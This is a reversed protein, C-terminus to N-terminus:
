LAIEINFHKQKKKLMKKENKKAMWMEIKPKATTDENNRRRINKGTLMNYKKILLLYNGGVGLLLMGITIPAFRFCTSFCFM